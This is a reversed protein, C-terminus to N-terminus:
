ELRLHSRARRGRQLLLCGVRRRGRPSRRRGPGRPYRRRGRRGHFRKRRHRHLGRRRGHRLVRLGRCCRAMPSRNAAPSSWATSSRRQFASRPPRIRHLSRTAAVSTSSCRASASTRKGHSFIPSCSSARRRIAAGVPIETIQDSGDGRRFVYTDKGTGGDLVDNGAGGSLTDSFGDTGILVDDDESGNVCASSPRRRRASKRTSRVAALAAADRRSGRVLRSAAGRAGDALTLLLDVGDRSVAMEAWRIDDDFRM